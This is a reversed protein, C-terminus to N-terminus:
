YVYLSINLLFTQCLLKSSRYITPLPLCGLPHPDLSTRVQVCRCDSLGLGVPEARVRQASPGPPLPAHQSGDFSARQLRARPLRPSSTVSQIGGAEDGRGKTSRVKQGGSRAGPM